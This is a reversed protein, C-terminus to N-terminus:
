FMGLAAAIAYVIGFGGVVAAVTWGAIALRKSIRQTGMITDDRGLLVLIM